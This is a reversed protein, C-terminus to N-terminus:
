IREVSEAAGRERNIGMWRRSNELPAEFRLQASLIQVMWWSGNTPNSTRRLVDAYFPDSDDVLQRQHSELRSGFPFVGSKVEGIWVSEQKGTPNGPM